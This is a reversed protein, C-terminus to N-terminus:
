KLIEKLRTLCKYHAQYKAQEYENSLDITSCTASSSLNSELTKVMEQLKAQIELANIAMDIAVTEANPSWTDGQHPKGCNRKTYELTKIARNIEM